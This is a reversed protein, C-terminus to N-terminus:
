LHQPISKGHQLNQEADHESEQESDGLENESLDELDSYEENSHAEVSESSSTEEGDEFRVSKLGQDSINRM